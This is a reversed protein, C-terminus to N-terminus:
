AYTLNITPFCSHFQVQQALSHQPASPGSSAPQAPSLFLLHDSSSSMISPGNSSGQQMSAQLQAAVARQMAASAAADQDSLGRSGGSGLMGQQVGQQAPSSDAASTGAPGAAASDEPKAILQSSSLRRGATLHKSHNVANEAPPQM